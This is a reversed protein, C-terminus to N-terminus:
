SVIDMDWFCCIPLLDDASTTRSNSVCLAGLGSDNAEEGSGWPNISHIKELSLNSNYALQFHQDEMDKLLMQSRWIGAYHEVLTSFYLKISSIKMQCLTRAVINILLIPAFGLLRSNCIWKRVHSEM